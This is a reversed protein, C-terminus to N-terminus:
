RTVPSLARVFTWGRRLRSRVTTPSLHHRRAQEEISYNSICNGCMTGKPKHAKIRQGCVSCPEKPPAHHPKKTIADRISWGHRIRSDLTRRSINLEEAWQSITQRRGRYTLYKCTRKNNSQDKHSAWRCNRPNYGNNNDVRELSMGEPRVGMDTIFNRLRLWRRCVKIGRGGYNKYSKHAPLTCRQIM